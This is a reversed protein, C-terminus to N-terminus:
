KILGYIAGNEYKESKDNPPLIIRTTLFTVLITQRRQRSYKNMQERLKRLEANRNSPPLVAPLTNEVSPGSAFGTAPNIIPRRAVTRKWLEEVVVDTTTAITAECLSYCRRPM